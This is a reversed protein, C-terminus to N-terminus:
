SKSDGLASPKIVMGEFEFGEIAARIEEAIKIAGQLDTNPCIVIFEEGGWPWGTLKELGKSFIRAIGKLLRDGTLHGHEDNVKKFHDVDAM